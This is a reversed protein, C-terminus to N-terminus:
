GATSVWDQLRDIFNGTSYMQAAAVGDPSARGAVSRVAAAIDDLNSMDATAGMSTGSELVAEAAGGLENVVIPAGAALAEIPMIGFDEVPPFVYALCRQYLARLLEDSVAGAFIVPTDKAAAQVRLESEKPGSGVIVAPLRMHAATNIVVDLRKYPVLRSAGLLFNDPLGDLFAAERENLTSSWDDVSTIIETAVPPHIVVADRHWFRQIREAVYNSNAAMATAEQARRRDIGRFLPLLPRAFAARRDVDPEWIYRAPSHVYVFKPVESQNAAPPVRVHHAFCHSSVLTWDYEGDIGTRWRLPMAPLRLAKNPERRGAPWLERIRAAPYRDTDTNWLCLIDADPYAEAMADLVREAGGHPEIWEHVILGGM